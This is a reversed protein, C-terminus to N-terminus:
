FFKELENLSFPKYLSKAVNPEEELLKELERVIYLMEQMSLKESTKDHAQRSMILIFEEIVFEKLQSLYELMAQFLKSLHVTSLCNPIKRIILSEESIVNVHMGLREFLLQNEDVYMILDPDLKVSEPVLLTQTAVNQDHYGQLLKKHTLYQQTKAVHIINMGVSTETMVFKAHTQGIIRGLAGVSYEKPTFNDATFQSFATNESSASNNFGVVEDYVQVPTMKELYEEQCFVPRVSATAAEDFKLNVVEHSRELAEKVSNVIFDHVLRADQFRVESKTPHVNVDISSPDLTLYLVYCPFRGEAVQDAYAERIAHTVVKDRIMRANIYFNQLDSQSRSYNPLGLWGQLQLGEREMDIAVANQMFEIGYIKALRQEKAILDHAPKYDFVIRKNHKFTFGIDYRCLAMRKILQEIQQYETKETRLFKRRVPTNYFLDRVEVTTGDNHACPVVNPDFHRGEVQIRWASRHGAMRSQIVLRSVSAISALAEGRFGLSMIQHLDKLTSIKSTAHRTVALVLDEKAIGCGNDKVRILRMGGREIEVDVHRTGADIANEILEKVASAPREVVEGAAIQNALMEDLVKIHM